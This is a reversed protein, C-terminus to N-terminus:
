ALAEVAKQYVTNIYDGKRNWSCFDFARRRGADGMRRRLEPDRALRLMADAIDHVVQDPTEAPVKFGTQETVQLAPGGLDLCIVPRGAAMAEPCVLGGSDHLSPHVLVDCHALSELVSARPRSGLLRVSDGVGLRRALAMLREREPGDGLIWYEGDPWEKRFVAFAAIGLHFGKWHLLRGMSVFRIPGDERAPFASLRAYEQDTIGSEQHLEVCRVRCRRMWEATEHAKALGITATRVTRHLLPDFRAAWRAVDRSREYARGRWGFTRYFSRPATEAGGVPGWVLPVPLRALLTPMWSAGFTAHHTLDFGVRPHLRRAIVYIAIQWLYYYLHVGRQGRKWFRAWSPLDFYVWRVSPLPGDRLADEIAPRNKARTIVWVDHFRAAQRVWNWGAGPESGSTPDCAYASVLIKM